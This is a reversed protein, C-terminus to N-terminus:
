SQDLEGRFGKVRKTVFTSIDLEGARIKRAAAKIKRYSVDAIDCSEFFDASDMEFLNTAADREIQINRSIGKAGLDKLGQLIKAVFLRRLLYSDRFAGARIWADTEDWCFVNRGSNKATYRPPIGRATGAKVITIQM